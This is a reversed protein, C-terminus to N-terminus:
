GTQTAASADCNSPRCSTSSSHGRMRLTGPHPKSPTQYGKDTLIANTFRGDEPDPERRVLGRSELRTVLHSLRSLSANVLDALLSM